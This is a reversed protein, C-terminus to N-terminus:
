FVVQKFFFYIGVNLLSSAYLHLKMYSKSSFPFINNSLTTSLYLLVLLLTASKIEQVMDCMLALSWMAVIAYREKHKLQLSNYSATPSNLRFLGSSLNGLYLFVAPPSQNSLCNLCSRITLHELDSIGQTHCLSQHTVTRDTHCQKKRNYVSFLSGRPYCIIVGGGGGMVYLLPEVTQSRSTGSREQAGSKKIFWLTEYMCCSFLSCQWKKQAQYPFWRPDVQTVFM